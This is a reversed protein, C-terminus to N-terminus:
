LEKPTNDKTAEVADKDKACLGTLGFMERLAADRREAAEPSDPNLVSGDPQKLDIGLVSCVMEKPILPLIYTSYFDLMSTKQIAYRIEVELLELHAAEGVVRDFVELIRRRGGINRNKNPDVGYSRPNYGKQFKGSSNRPIEAIPASVSCVAEDALLGKPEVPTAATGNNRKTQRTPKAHKTKATKELHQKTAM